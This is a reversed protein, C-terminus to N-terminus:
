ERRNLRLTQRLVCDMQLLRLTFPLKAQPECPPNKTPEQRIRPPVEALERRFRPLNEASRFAELPQRFSLRLSALLSGSPPRFAGLIGLLRHFPHWFPDLPLGFSYFFELDNESAEWPAMEVITAKMKAGNQMCKPLWFRELKMNNKPKM